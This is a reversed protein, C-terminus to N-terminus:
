RDARPARARPGSRGAPARRASLEGEPPADPQTDPAPVPKSAPPRWAALLQGTTRGDLLPHRLPGDESIRYHNRRGQRDRRLYGDRELDVVIAYVARLTVGVADALDRLRLDPDAALCVLVHGHRSLFSWQSGDSPTAEGDLPKAAMTM